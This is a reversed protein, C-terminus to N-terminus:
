VRDGFFARSRQNGYLYWIVFVSVAITILANVRYQANMAILTWIAAIIQVVEFVLVLARAIRSGRRLLVAFWIQILGFGLALLGLTVITGASEGSDSQLDSSGSAFVLVLGVIIQLIAGIIMLITVLSLLFPRRAPYAATM